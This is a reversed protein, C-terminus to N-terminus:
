NDGGGDVAAPSATNGGIAATEPDGIKKAAVGKIAMLVVPAIVLWQKPLDALNVLAFSAVAYIVTWVLREAYDKAWASM